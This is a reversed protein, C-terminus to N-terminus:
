RIRGDRDPQHAARFARLDVVRLMPRSVDTRSSPGDSTTGTISGTGSRIFADTAELVGDSASGNTGLVVPGADTAQVGAPWNYAESGDVVSRTSWTLGKDTSERYLVTTMSCPADACQEYAARWVGGRESLMPEFSFPSSKSALERTASWTKGADLSQRVVTWADTSSLLAYGVLVTKNRASAFPMGGLASSTIVKASSWTAGANTSRRVVLTSDDQMYAVVMAGGGVAVSPYGEFAEPADFYPQYQTTAVTHRTGFSAGGDTSTRVRIRGTQQDTWVVAVRGSGDRAVKPLGAFDSSASMTRTVDWTRGATTSRRYKVSQSSGTAEVWAADIDRLYGGLTTWGAADADAASLRRVSIGGADSVRRVYARLVDGDIDQYGAVSGSSGFTVLGGPHAQGGGSETVPDPASWTVAAFAISVSTIAVIASLCAAISASRSPHM